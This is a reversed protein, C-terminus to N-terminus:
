LYDDHDEFYVLTYTSVDDPSEIKADHSVANVARTCGDINNSNVYTYEITESKTVGSNEYYLIVKYTDYGVGPNRIIVDTITGSGNLVPELVCGTGGGGILELTLDRDDYGSGGNLIQIQAIENNSVFIKFDAGSGSSSSVTISPANSKMGKTNALPITEANASINSSLKTAKLITSKHLPQEKYTTAYMTAVATQNTYINNGPYQIDITSDDVINDGILTKVYAVAKASTGTGKTRIVVPNEYYGGGNTMTFDTVIGNSYTTTAAFNGPSNGSYSETTL